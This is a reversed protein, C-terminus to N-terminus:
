GVTMGRAQLWEDSFFQSGYRFASDPLITVIRAPRGLEKALERAAWAAAGSSGGALLSEKRALERATKFADQDTVTIVRDIREFEVCGVITEDGLGEILYRTSDALKGTKFYHAFVSGAPDVAVVQVKPDQEKVYRAVGSLTGGTGIGAVIYDIKGDMQDWIEPGTTLYHAENNERNNHQDPYYSNPTEAAIRDAIRNYSDPHERPLKNDVLVLEVGLATLFNRKEKSVSDRVIMKCRYGRLNAMMALGLATNGSSAEILVSGPKLRGDKEAKDILHRALRDKISGMPNLFEVKAYVTAPGPILRGLKVMPTHGVAGLVNEYVRKGTEM